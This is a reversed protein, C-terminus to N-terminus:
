IIEWAYTKYWEYINKRARKARLKKLFKKWKQFRKTKCRYKCAREWSKKKM